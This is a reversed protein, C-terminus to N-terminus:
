KRDLEQALEHAWDRYKRLRQRHAAYNTPAHHADNTTDFTQTIRDVLGSGVGCEVLMRRVESSNLGHAKKKIGKRGFYVESALETIVIRIEEEAQQLKVSGATSDQIIANVERLREDWKTWPTEIISLGAQTYATIEYFRGNISRCGSRVMDIWKRNHSLLIVQRGHEVLKRIVEIFQIEHEADWSQIPDDIILFDFPSEGKLNTAISVCLGLANLKSESLSSVASVLEKGYSKAKIQVRRAKLEGKKTREMDFGDFHVDPDGKTKVQGYWEMVEATLDTSISELVKNAVYQDVSKRLDKLGDLIDIIELKKEVNRRQEVLEILVSIAETGAM